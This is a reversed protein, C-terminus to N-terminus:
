GGAIGEVVAEEGLVQSQAAAERKATLARAGEQAAFNEFEL